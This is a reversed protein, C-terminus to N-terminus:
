ETVNILQRVTRPPVTLQLDYFQDYNYSNQATESKAIWFCSTIFVLRKRKFIFM